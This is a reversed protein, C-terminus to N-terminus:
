KDGEINPIIENLHKLWDAEHYEDKGNIRFNVNTWHAAKSTALIERLSELQVDNVYRTDLEFKLIM